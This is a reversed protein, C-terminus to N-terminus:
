AAFAAGAWDRRNISGRPGEGPGAAPPDPQADRPM